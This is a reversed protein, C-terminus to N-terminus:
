NIQLEAILPLHDIVEVINDTAKTTDTYANLISINASTIINDLNTTDTMTTGGSYTPIIGFDGFNAVNYGADIFPKVVDIYDQGSTDQAEVTNFDGGIIFRTDNSVDTLITQAENKRYTLNSWHLHTVVLTIAIGNITVTCSDYYYNSDSFKHTVYNSIPFKSFIARQVVTTTTGDTQEHYYPYSGQLMSLSTRGAKSFQATYEELLLIDADNSTIISNQLAYYDADKASPVNDHSGIYWQGVNYQMVKINRAGLLANGDIDYAQALGDGNTDYVTAIGSGNIDYVAM